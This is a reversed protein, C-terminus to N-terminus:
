ELAGIEPLRLKRMSQRFLSYKGQYRDPWSPICIRKADYIYAVPIVFPCAFGTKALALLVVYDSARHTAHGEKWLLFQWRGDLGRRSTKVEVRNVVGHRDVVRLDGHEHAIDVAYGSAEFARAAAVEGLFGIATHTQALQATVQPLSLQLGSM